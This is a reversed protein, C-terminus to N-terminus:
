STGKCSKSDKYKNWDQLHQFPLKLTFPNSKQGYRNNSQDRYQNNTTAASLLSSTTSLKGNEPLKKDTKPQQTITSM